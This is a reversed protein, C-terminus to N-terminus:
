RRLLVGYAAGSPGVPCSGSNAEPAVWYSAGQLLGSSVIEPIHRTRQWDDFGPRAESAPWARTLLMVQSATGAAGTTTGGTAALSTAGGDNARPQGSMEGGAGLLPVGAPLTEARHPLDRVAAGGDPGRAGHLVSLPRRARGGNPGSASRCRSGPPRQTYILPGLLDNWFYSFEIVGLAILVPVAQPM